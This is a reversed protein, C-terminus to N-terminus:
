GWSKPVMSNSSEWAPSWGERKFPNVAWGTPSEALDAGDDPTKMAQLIADTLCRLMDTGHDVVRRGQLM